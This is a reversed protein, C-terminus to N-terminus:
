SDVARCFTHAYFAFPEFTSQFSEDQQLMVNLFIM